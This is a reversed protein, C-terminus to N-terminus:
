SRRRGDRGLGALGPRAGTRARSARPQPPHPRGRREVLARSELGLAPHGSHGLEALVRALVTCRELSTAHSSLLVVARGALRCLGGHSPHTGRLLQSRVEIGVAEATKTLEALVGEADVATYFLGM